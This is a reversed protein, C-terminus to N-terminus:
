KSYNKYNALFYFITSADKNSWIYDKSLEDKSKNIQVYNNYKKIVGTMLSKMDNENSNLLLSHFQKEKNPIFFEEGRKYMSLLISIQWSHWEKKDLEDLSMNKYDIYKFPDFIKKAITQIENNSLKEVRTPLNLSFLNPMEIKLEEASLNKKDIPKVKKNLNSVLFLLLLVIIILILLITIINFISM